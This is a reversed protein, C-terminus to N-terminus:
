NHEELQFTHKISNLLIYSLHEPEPGTNEYLNPYLGITPKSNTSIAM